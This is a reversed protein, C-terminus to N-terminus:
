LHSRHAAGICYALPVLLDIRMDLEDATNM